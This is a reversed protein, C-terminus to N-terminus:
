QVIKAIESCQTINRGMHSVDNQFLSTQILASFQPRDLGTSPMLLSVIICGALGLSLSLIWLTVYGNCKRM